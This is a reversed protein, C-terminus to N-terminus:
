SHFQQTIPFFTRYSIALSKGCCTFWIVSGSAICAIESQETNQIKARNTPIYHYRKTTKILMERIVVYQANKM